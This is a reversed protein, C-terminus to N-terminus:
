EGTYKVTVTLTGPTGSISAVDLKVWAGSAIAADTFSTTTAGDTDCALDATATDACSAGTSDCEQINITASTAASVICDLGTLTLAAPAKFLIMDDTAAVSPVVVSFTKTQASCTLNGSADITTAWTGAACDTPNAALATATSANGTVAGTLPGTFGTATLMGTGANYSLGADTKVALSGTASDVMLISSSTDTSDIVVVTNAVTAVAVTGAPIVYDTGASAISVVGNADTKVIGAAMDLVNVKGDDDTDFLHLYDYIANKSPAATDVADWTAGYATNSVSAEAGTGDGQLGWSNTSQCLYFRQGATADTDMFMDGTTCTAPLSAASPIRVTAGTFIWTGTPTYSGGLELITDAADRVTKARTTSLGTFTVAGTGDIDGVTNVNGDTNVSAALIDKSDYDGLTMTRNATLSAPVTIDKYEDGAASSPEYLRVISAADARTTALYLASITFAGANWNATLPVTGDALLDGGGAGCAGWTGNGLLCESASGSLIPVLGHTTISPALATSGATFVMNKEAILSWIPNWGTGQSTLVYNVTGQSKFTDSALTIPSWVGTADLFLISSGTTAPMWEYGAPVGSLFATHDYAAQHTTMSASATGAPDYLTTLDPIYSLTIKGESVPAYSASLDDIAAADIKGNAAVDYVTTSMNGGGAIAVWTLTGTGNNYLVGTADTPLTDGGSGAAWTFLGTGDNYLYGAANTPYVIEYMNDYTQTQYGSKSVVIKFKQTYKYTAMDIWFTFVGYSDATVSGVGTAGTETTYVTAATSTGALYISVTASPIVPGAKTRAIGTYKARPAADALSVIFMLLLVALGIFRWPKM